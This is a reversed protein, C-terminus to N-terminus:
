LTFCQSQYKPGLHWEYNTISFEYNIEMRGLCQPVFIKVLRVFVNQIGYDVM